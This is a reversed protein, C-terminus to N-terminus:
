QQSIVTIILCAVMPVSKNTSILYAHANNAFEDFNQQQGQFMTYMISVVIWLAHTILYVFTM